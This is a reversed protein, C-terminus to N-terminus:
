TSRFAVRQTSSRPWPASWARPSDGCRTVSFATSTRSTSTWEECSVPCTRHGAHVVARECAVGVGDDAIPQLDAGAVHEGHVRLRDLALERNRERLGAIAGTRAVDVHELDIGPDRAGAGEACRLLREVVSGGPLVRAHALEHARARTEDPDGAALVRLYK